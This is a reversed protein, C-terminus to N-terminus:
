NPTNKSMEVLYVQYQLILLPYAHRKEEQNYLTFDLISKSASNWNVKPSPSKQNKGKKLM